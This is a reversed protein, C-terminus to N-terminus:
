ERSCDLYLGISDLAEFNGIFTFESSVFLRVLLHTNSEKKPKIGYKVLLDSFDEHEKSANVLRRMDRAMEEATFQPFLRKPKRASSSSNTAHCVMSEAPRSMKKTRTAERSQDLPLGLEAPESM